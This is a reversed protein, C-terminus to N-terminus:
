DYKDKKNINMFRRFSTKKMWKDREGM